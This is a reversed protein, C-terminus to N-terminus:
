QVAYLGFHNEFLRANSALGFYEKDYHCALGTVVGAVIGIGISVAVYILQWGVLSIPYGAAIGINRYDNQYYWLLCLPTVVASGLLSSLLIPGLLGMCDYIYTKNVIPHIKKMYAGSIVGSIVGVLIAIGSNSLIPATSGLCVGGTIAGIIVDKFGIRSNDARGLAASGIYVGVTSGSIAWFINFTAYNHGKPSYEIVESYAM